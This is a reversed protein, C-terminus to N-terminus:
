ERSKRIGSERIKKQYALLLATSSDRHAETKTHPVEDRYDLKGVLDALVEDVRRALELSNRVLVSGQSYIKLLASETSPVPDSAERDDEEIDFDNEGIAFEAVFLLCLQLLDCSAAPINKVLQFM